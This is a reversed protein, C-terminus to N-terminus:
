SSAFYHGWYLVFSVLCVAVDTVGDLTHLIMVPHGLLGVEVDNYTELPNRPERPEGDSDGSDVDKFPDTLWFIRGQTISDSPLM